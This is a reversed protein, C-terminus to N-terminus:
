CEENIGCFRDSVTVLLQIAKALKGGIIPILKIFSISKCVLWRVKGYVRCFDDSLGKPTPAASIAQAHSIASDLQTEDIENFKREIESM